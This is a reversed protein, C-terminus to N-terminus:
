RRGGQFNQLVMDELSQNADYSLANGNAVGAQADQPALAAGNLINLLDLEDWFSRPRAGTPTFSAPTADGM